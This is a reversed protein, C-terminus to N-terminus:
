KVLLRFFKNATNKPLYLTLWRGQGEILQVKLEDTDRAALPTTTWHADNLSDKHEASYSKGPVGWFTVALRGNPTVHMAEAFFYDYDLFAFTGAQYEEGNTQGDGDYDDGPNVEYIGAFENDTWYLMEQEWQDPLLDGDADVAATVNIAVMKGPKGVPPVQGQEMITKQGFRDRVVISVLDGVRVAKAVYNSAGQGDDLHTYLAFNVGPVRSGEITSRAIERDDKLLVVEANERYPIGFGDKAQGYYIFMPQPIGADLTFSLVLMGLGVAFSAVPWSLASRGSHRSPHFQGGTGIASRGTHESKNRLTLVQQSKM